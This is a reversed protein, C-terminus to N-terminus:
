RDVRAVAFFFFGRMRACACFQHRPAVPRRVEWPDSSYAVPFKGALGPESDDFREHFPQNFPNKGSGLQALTEERAV